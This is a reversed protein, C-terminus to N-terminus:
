FGISGLVGDFAAVLESREEPTPLSFKPLKPADPQRWWPESTEPEPLAIAGADVIAQMAALDQLTLYLPGGNLPHLQRLELARGDRQWGARRLEARGSGLKARLTQDYAPAGLRESALGVLERMLPREFRDALRYRVRYVRGRFLDYEVYAVDARTSERRLRRQAPPAEPAAEGAESPEGEVPRERVREGLSRAREASAERLTDGFRERLASESAGLGPPEEPAEASRTVIPLAALIALVAAAALRRAARAESDRRRTAM